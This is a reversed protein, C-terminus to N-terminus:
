EIFERIITAAGGIWEAKLEENADVRRAVEGYVFLLRRLVGHERMLDETPSVEDEDKAKPETARAGGGGVLAGGVALGGARLLQRRTRDITTMADEHRGSPAEHPSLAGRLRAHSGAARGADRGRRAQGTGAGGRRPQGPQPL